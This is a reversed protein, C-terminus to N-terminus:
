KSHSKKLVNEMRMVYMSGVKGYKALHEVDIYRLFRINAAPIQPVQEFNNLDPKSIGYLSNVEQNWLPELTALDLPLGSTTLDSSHKNSKGDKHRRRYILLVILFLFLLLLAVSLLSYTLLSTVQNLPQFLSSYGKDPVKQFPPRIILYAPDSMGIKNVARLQFASQHNTDLTINAQKDTLNYPTITNWKPRETNSSATPMSKM